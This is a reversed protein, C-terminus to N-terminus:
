WTDFCGGFPKRRCFFIAVKLLDKKDMHRGWIMMGIYIALLLIITVFVPMSELFKEASFVTNFDISNPPVVFDGGFSTLHNSLCKTGYITTVHSVQLLLLPSCNKNLNKATTAASITM